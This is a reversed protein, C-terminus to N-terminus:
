QGFNGHSYVRFARQLYLYSRGRFRTSMGAISFRYPGVGRDQLSEIRALAASPLVQVPDDGMSYGLGHFVFLKKQKETKVHGFRNILIKSTSGTGEKAVAPAHVVRQQAAQKKIAEPIQLRDVKVPANADVVQATAAAQPRASLGVYNMLFLYNKGQYRTVKAWVRVETEPEVRGDELLVELTSCPLLELRTGVPVVTNQDKIDSALKLFWPGADGTTVMRGQVSKAYLGDRLLPVAAQVSGALLLIVVISRLVIRMRKM